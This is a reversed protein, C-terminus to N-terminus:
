ALLLFDASQADAHALKNYVIPWSISSQYRKCEVYWRQEIQEGVADHQFYTAEIDRGGDAGPTRWVINKFGSASVLDYILNEFESPSVDGINTMRLDRRRCLM